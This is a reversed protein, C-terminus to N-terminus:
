KIRRKCEENKNKSNSEASGHPGKIYIHEKSKSYKQEEMILILKMNKLWLIM